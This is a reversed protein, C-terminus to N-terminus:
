AFERASKETMDAVQLVSGFTTLLLLLPVALLLLLSMVVAFAAARSSSSSPFSIALFVLFNIPRSPLLLLLFAGKEFTRRSKM